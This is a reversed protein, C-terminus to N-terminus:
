VNKTCVRDRQLWNHIFVQKESFEQQAKRIGVVKVYDLAQFLELKARFKFEVAQLISGRRGFAPM